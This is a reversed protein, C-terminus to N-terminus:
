TYIFMLMVVRYKDYMFCILSNVDFSFRPCSRMKLNICCYFHLRFAFLWMIRNGPRSFYSRASAWSEKRRGVDIGSLRACPPITVPSDRGLPIHTTSADTTTAASINNESPTASMSGAADQPFPSWEDTYANVTENICLRPVSAPSCFCNKQPCM